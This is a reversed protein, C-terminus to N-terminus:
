LVVLNQQDKISYVLEGANTIEATKLLRILEIPNPIATMKEFIKKEIIIQQDVAEMAEKNQKKDEKKAPACANAALLILVIYSAIRM